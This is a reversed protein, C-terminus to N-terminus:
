NRECIKLCERVLDYHVICLINKENKLQFIDNKIEYIEDEVGICEPVIALLFIDSYENWIEKTVIPLKEKFREIKGKCEFLYELLCEMITDADLGFLIDKLIEVKNKGKAVILVPAKKELLKEKMTGIVKINSDFLFWQWVEPMCENEEVWDGLFVSKGNPEFGNQLMWQEIQFLDINETFKIKKYDVVTDLCPVEVIDCEPHMFHCNKADEETTFVGHIDIEEWLQHLVVYVNKM